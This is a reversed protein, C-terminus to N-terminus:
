SVNNNNNNDDDDDDDYDDNTTTTNINTPSPITYDTYRDRHARRRLPQLELLPLTLFKRKELDDLRARPDV